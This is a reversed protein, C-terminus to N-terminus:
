KRLRYSVGLSINSQKSTHIGNNIFISNLFFNNFQYAAELNISRSIPYILGLTVGGNISIKSVEEDHVLNDVLMGETTKGSTSISYTPTIGIGTCAQLQGILPWRREIGFELGITNTYNNKYTFEKRSTKRLAELNYTVDLDRTHEFVSHYRDYKAVLSSKWNRNISFRLGAKFSAAYAKSVKDKLINSDAIKLEYTNGAYGILLDEMVFQSSPLERDSNYALTPKGILSIEQKIFAPLKNMGITPLEEVDSSMSQGMAANMDTSSGSEGIEPNISVSSLISPELKPSASILPSATRDL